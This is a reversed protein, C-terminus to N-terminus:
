DEVLAQLARRLHVRLLHKKYDSSGRNDTEIQAEAVAAECADELAREDFRAGRLIDEANSLRTPRDVAASLVLRLDEIHDRRRQLAIAVGLAPWDHAARTTIKTYSSSWDPRVPARLEAILDAHGLTTEYYGAFIDEVPVLREGEPNVILARAGLAVWVPPMDLHPDAHAINGGVTAVNRVRVNALTKMTRAIVPFLRRVDPAHELEAFTTMAGVRLAAGDASLGFGSFRDGLRRLSVLRQPKFMRAKMMLMLATGGGLPRVAPDDGGLMSLADELTRPETIEFGTM